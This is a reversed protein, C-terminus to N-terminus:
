FSYRLRIGAYREAGRSVLQSMVPSGGYFGSQDTIFGAFQEDFANNVFATVRYRGENDEIGVNFNAIGYGEQITRPNAFLDFNVDDQYVYNANAFVGFPMGSIESEFTLGINYKFDPSNALEKGSLDQVGGVCGEAESQGPYCTAGPFKEIGADILALGADLRWSSTLQAAFEAEIGQTRLEGVNNLKFILGQNADTISSQAQFDEYDTLFAVVSFQGRGDWIAGKLGAEYSISSESGVPNNARDENFGSSVDYGQGKYGTSVSAFASMDDRFFYQVAVKGTGFSESDDGSFTADRANDDFYVDIEERGYRGGITLDVKESLQFNVQGFAAMNTNGTGSAWDAVFIPGRNFVRDTSADSYWLGVIYDYGDFQPSEIRFEQTIQDAEFPGVQVIGGSLAGGTFAGLLDFDSGDVDQEFKYSWDQYSTISVLNYDGMAYEFKVSTSLQENESVPDYDLRTKFNDEGAQIGQAFDEVGAVGFLKADAPLSRYTFANGKADRESYDAVVQISLNDTAHIRLKGRVGFGEDGNLDHGNTLNKIHGDREHTYANLRFGARDGLPGSFSANVRYENDDTVLGEVYGEFEETPGATVINVVGASANKGFLTGQPGRLVEIREVDALSNFAQAQQVVPVDDVIVSVSPEVGISFAYTGIGRMNISSNGTNEGEKITLSPAVSTLTNFDNVGANALMKGSIASVAAPVEFVSEERKQAVVNVVELVLKEEASVAATQTTAAMAAAIALPLPRKVRGLANTLFM